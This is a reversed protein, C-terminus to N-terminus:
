VNDSSRFDQLIINKNKTREREIQKIQNKISIYDPDNIFDQTQLMKIRINNLNRETTSWEKCANIKKSTNKILSSVGDDFPTLGEEVLVKVIDKNIFSTWSSDYKKLKNLDDPPTATPSIKERFQQSVEINPFVQVIGEEPLSEIAAKLANVDLSLERLLADQESRYNNFEKQLKEIAAITNEHGTYDPTTKEGNTSVTVQFVFAAVFGAVLGLIIYLINKNM